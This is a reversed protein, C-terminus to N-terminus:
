IWGAVWFALLVSTCGSENRHPNRSIPLARIARKLEDVSSDETTM